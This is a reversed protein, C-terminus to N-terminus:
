SSMLRGPLLLKQPCHWSQSVPSFHCSNWGDKFSCIPISSPLYLNTSEKLPCSPLVCCLGDMTPNSAENSGKWLPLQRAESWLVRGGDVSACWQGASLGSDGIGSAEMRMRLGKYEREMYNWLSKVSFFNFCCVGRGIERLIRLLNRNSKPFIKVWCVLAWPGHGTKTYSM